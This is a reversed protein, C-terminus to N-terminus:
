TWLDPIKWDLFAGVRFSFHSPAGEVRFVTGGPVHRLASSEIKALFNSCTATPRDFSFSSINRMWDCCVNVKPSYRENDTDDHLTESGWVHCRHM